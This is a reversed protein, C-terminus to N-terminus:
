VDIVDLHRAHQMHRHQSRRVGVGHDSADIQRCGFDCRADAQHQGAGASAPLIPGITGFQIM